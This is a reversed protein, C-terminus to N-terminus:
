CTKNEGPCHTQMAQPYPILCCRFLAPQVAGTIMSLLVGESTYLIYRFYLGFQCLQLRFAFIKM